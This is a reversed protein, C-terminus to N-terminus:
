VSPRKQKNFNALITMKKYPAHVDLLGNVTNILMDFAYNVDHMEIQM